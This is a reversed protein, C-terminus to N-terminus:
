ETRLNNVPNAMAARLVHFGVTLLALGLAALGVGAFMWWELRIRYPFEQLWRSTILWSVPTAIVLIDSELLEDTLQDSQLAAEKLRAAEARDKTTIARLTTGDLHPLHEGALNVLLPQLLGYEQISAALEQLAADDQIPGRPQHPNPAIAGIPVEFLASPELETDLLQDDGIPTAGPILAELGRGLAFRHKPM